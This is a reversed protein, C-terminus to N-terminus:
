MRNLSSSHFILHLKKNEINARKEVCFKAIAPCAGALAVQSM